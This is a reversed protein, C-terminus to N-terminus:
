EFSEAKKYDTLDFSLQEEKQGNRKEEILADISGATGQKYIDPIEVNVNYAAKVLHKIFAAKSGLSGHTNFGLEEMIQDVKKM